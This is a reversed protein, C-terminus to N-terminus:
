FAGVVLPLGIAAFHEKIDFLNSSWPAHRDMYLARVYYRFTPYALAGLVFTIIYAVLMTAGYVRALREKYVGRWYGIVILLHHTAAGILVIAAAAHLVVLLRGISEFVIM